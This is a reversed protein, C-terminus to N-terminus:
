ALLQYGEELAKSENPLADFATGFVEQADLFDKGLGLLGDDIGKSWQKIQRCSLQRSITLLCQRADKAHVILIM